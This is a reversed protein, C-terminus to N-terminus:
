SKVKWRRGGRPKKYSYNKISNSYAAYFIGKKIAKTAAKMSYGPNKEIASRIFSTAPRVYKFNWGRLFGEKAGKIMDSKMNDWDQNWLWKDRKISNVITYVTKYGNFITGILNSFLPIKSLVIFSNFKKIIKGIDWGWAFNKLYHRGPSSTTLFEMILKSNKQWLIVPKKNHTEIRKFRIVANLLNLSWVNSPPEIITINDIWSSNLPIKKMSDKLSKKGNLFVKKVKGTVFKNFVKVIKQRPKKIILDVVKKAAYRPSTLLSVFTRVKAFTKTIKTVVNKTKEIIEKSQTVTQKFTSTNNGLEKVLESTVGKFRKYNAIGNAEIPKTGFKSLTKASTKFQAKFATNQDNINDALSFVKNSTKFGKFHKFGKTVATLLNFGTSIGFDEWDVQGENEILNFILDVLTNLIFEVLTGLGPVFVDIMKGLISIGIAAITQFILRLWKWWWTNKILYEKFQKAQSAQVISYTHKSKGGYYIM